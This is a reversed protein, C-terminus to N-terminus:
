LWTRYSLKDSSAEQALLRIKQCASFFLQMEDLDANLIFLFLVTASNKDKASPISCESYKGANIQLISFHDALLSGFTAIAPIM